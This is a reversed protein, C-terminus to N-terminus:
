ALTFHLNEVTANNSGSTCRVWVELFDDAVMDSITNITVADARTGGSLVSKLPPSDIVGNKYIAVEVVQNNVTGLISMVAIARLSIQGQVSLVRLRNNQPMDTRELVGATTTGAVKTWTNVTLTTATANNTMFYEGVTASDEVGNNNVFGWNATKPGFGAVPTTINDFSNGGFIGYVTVNAIANANFRVGTVNAAAPVRFYNAVMDIIETNFTSSFTICNSNAAANRFPCADLFVKRSTGSFTLGSNFTDFNCSLLTPVRFGDIVGLSNSNVISMLNTLMEVNSNASVNVGQGFPAVIVLSDVFFSVDSGVVAANSGTYVFVDSGLHLGALMTNTGLRLSNSSTVTGNFQYYTNDELVHEGGVPPPLDDVTQVVVLNTRNNDQIAAIAIDTVGLVITEDTIVSWTSDRYRGGETVIISVGAFLEGNTNADISRVWTGNSGSGVTVVAYIGNQTANTQGTVLVRDAVNLAVSDVTNPAGGSLSVNTTAVVRCPSKLPANSLQAVTLKTLAM